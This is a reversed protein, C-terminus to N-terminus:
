LTSRKVRFANRGVAVIGPANTGPSRKRRQDIIKALGAITPHEFLDRLPLELNLERGVRSIVQTALLSHGGLEFFNDTVGIPDIGLLEQWTEVLVREVENRAGVVQGHRGLDPAPLARRDVKGNPTLPLSDLVVVASPVMYQPLRQSLWHRLEPMLNRVARNKIPDNVYSQWTGAATKAGPGGVTTHPTGKRRFVVDCTGDSGMASWRVTVSYPLSAGLGYLDEPEILAVDPERLISRLKGASDPADERQLQALTQVASWIRANPVATLGLLDPEKTELTSRVQSITLSQKQWDLWTCESSAQPTDGIRLVVDYRFQTVENLSHGRKLLVEVSSIRPLHHPLTEFFAPDIVLEEEQAVRRHARQLIEKCSMSSSAQHLQVAAHFAELLPLSRVDGVFITGNTGVAELARELARFLYDANPFYQVVSNMVVTDFSGAEVGTFNDAAGQTLTIPLAHDNKQTLQERIYNLASPSFDIGQYHECRPALRFLLLGTGCGIELIRRPALTNIRDVTNEVWERMENEPIPQGTYSSNWGAINFSAEAAPDAQKYTDDWAAEWQQLQERAAENQGQDAAGRYNPDAVVYAVLQQNGPGDERAVVVSQQVGEHETLVSEIEGLEIRFGRIKVQNDMRSLYQLNGDPLYRVLDGTKYLRPGEVSRFCDPVFKEQNLEPRNWYGRAVGDGGILLEGAVGRPVLQGYKDVVYMQTNAIPRGIPALTWVLDQVRYVASWITTETPGYMNWLEACRPLLREALERPLAEGGCLIKLAPDGKWGSDMLLRWTAPTAQMVSVECQQMLNMLQRGDSAQERSAIAVKAGVTLPLYLELAAIDFSLTTVAVLVDDGDMGPERQMSSLFNVVAGHEIQVGKPKGTSGSTYIVYALNGPSIDSSLNQESETAIAPWESDVCVVRAVQAPLEEVLIQQTLLLPLEADQVVLAIRDKPYAPDIPVYAGGAKLVGLVSVLMDLSREMCIGVLTEARVGRGKLFHALQNAHRNLESYTFQAQGDFAAIADPTREVQQEFLQHVGLSRPYDAQTANFAISLQDREEESLLPFERVPRNPEAVLRELLVRFHTLMRQVTSPHFLDVNYTLGLRLGDKVLANFVLDFKATMGEAGRFPGITTGPITRKEKLPANEYIFMVQIVPNRSLDREPKLEEVLREFPLDQHAYAQLTTERVRGLLERFSPNGSVDTRLALTNVFFGILGELEARTRGSIPSGVVINEQGSHRALLVNFAALLTMFLTVGEKQSLEQLAGELSRPLQMTEQAGIFTQVAPRPFDPPIELVSPAGDLQKKWYALLNELREGRLWDQQWTAYDGYQIPLNSLPSPKNQVFAEYLVTLERLVISWSWGDVISHHFALSLVHEEDGLRLLHARFLPGRKLDFPLRAYEIVRRRAEQERDEQSFERLDIFPLAFEQRAAVVQIPKGSEDESFTTRLVEHRSILEGLSRQLAVFDLSGNLRIAFPVNYASQGPELKDLFWLRQQSFSAPLVYVDDSSPQTSEPQVIVKSSNRAEEM